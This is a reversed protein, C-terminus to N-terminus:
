SMITKFVPYNVSDFNCKKASEWKFFLLHSLLHHPYWEGLSEGRFRANKVVLIICEHVILTNFTCVMKRM